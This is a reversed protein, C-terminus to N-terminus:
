ALFDHNFILAFLVALKSLLQDLEHADWDVNLIFVSLGHQEVALTLLTSAKIFANLGFIFAAV